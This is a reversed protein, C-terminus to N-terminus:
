KIDEDYSFQWGIGFKDTVSGYLESWFTKQLPMDVSGEDSLKEFYKTIREQSDCQVILTMNNGVTFPTGPFTDSFMILTGEIMLNTHMIRSKAEEPMPFAPDDPGMGFTMYVPQETEFVAAYYEVAEQCNGDYNVYVGVSMKFGGQSIM